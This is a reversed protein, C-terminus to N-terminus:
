ATVAQPDFKYNERLIRAHKREFRLREKDSIRRRRKLKQSHLEKRKIWERVTTLPAGWYAALAKPTWDSAPVTTSLLRAVPREKGPGRPVRLTGPLGSHNASLPSTKCSEGEARRTRPTAPSAIETKVRGRETHFGNSAVPLVSSRRDRFRSPSSTRWKGNHFTKPPRDTEDWYALIPPAGAADRYPSTPNTM